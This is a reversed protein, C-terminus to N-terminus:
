CQSYLTYLHRRCFLVNMLYNLLYPSIIFVKMKRPETLRRRCRKDRSPRPGKTLSLISIKQQSQAVFTTLQAKITINSVSVFIKKQGEM